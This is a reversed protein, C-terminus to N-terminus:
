PSSVVEIPPAEDAQDARYVQNFQLYAFLLTATATAIFLVAGIIFIAIEDM